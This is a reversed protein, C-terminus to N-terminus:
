RPFAMASTGYGSPLTARRGALHMRVPGARGARISAPLRFDAVPPPSPFPKAAPLQDSKNREVKCGNFELATYQSPGAVAALGNGTITSGRFELSDM